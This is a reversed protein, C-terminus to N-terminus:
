GERDNGESWRRSVAEANAEVPATDRDRRRTRGLVKATSSLYRRGGQLVARTHEM